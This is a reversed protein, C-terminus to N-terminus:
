EDRFTSDVREREGDRGREIEGDRWRWEEGEMDSTIYESKKRM